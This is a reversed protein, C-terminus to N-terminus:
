AFHTNVEQQMKGHLILPACRYGDNMTSSEYDFSNSKAFRDVWSRAIRGM